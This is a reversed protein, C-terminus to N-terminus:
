YFYKTRWTIQGLLDFGTLLLSLFITSTAFLIGIIQVKQDLFISLFIAIGWLLTYIFAKWFSFESDNATLATAGVVIGMAFIAGSPDTTVAAPIDSTVSAGTALLIAFGALAAAGAAGIADATVAVLAVIIATIAALIAGVAHDAGFVYVTCYYVAFVVISSFSM